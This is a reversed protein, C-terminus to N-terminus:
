LYSSGDLAAGAWWELEREDGLAKEWAMTAMMGVICLGLQREWWGATDVGQEELARRYAVITEEKSRPLRDCNLALYWALEWCPPAEGPYAWDLLVTRGDSRSGLNGLKWDGAVFTQPTAALADALAHPDAHVSRVLENLRPSRDPLRHWGAAAAAIPGPVDDVLLEPAITSPAFWVFRRSLDQLGITDRWGFFTAHFVALHEVFRDHQAVTLTSDGPPVLDDSRDTMLIALRAGPGDGELSMAVVAHDIVTPVRHYLGAAWVRYEWNTTNGTVRMIWDQDARLVKLFLREGDIVLREFTAGSKADSPRVPRRSSAGAVLKAITPAVFPTEMDGGDNVPM